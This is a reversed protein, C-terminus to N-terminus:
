GWYKPRGYYDYLMNEYERNVPESPDFEPSNKINERLLDVFVKRLTWSINEVWQPSILVKKGPLWNKTDVVLYRVNWSTESEVIFDDVHGIEGDKAGIHYGMVEKTSRIHSVGKEENSRSKEEEQMEPPPLNTFIYSPMGTPEWYVPWNHKRIELRKERSVPKDKDIDPSEQIQKKTLAIYLSKEEGDAKKIELPSILVKRGPLWGGIDVVLYRIIWNMEDFLFSHVSGINGDAAHIKYTQIDKLSRLMKDSWKRGM